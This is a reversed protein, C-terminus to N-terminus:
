KFPHFNKYTLELGNKELLAKVIATKWDNPIYAHCTPLKVKQAISPALIDLCSKVLWKPILVLSCSANYSTSNINSVDEVSLPSFSDLLLTLVLLILKSIISPTRSLNLKKLLSNGLNIQLQFQIMTLCYIVTALIRVFSHLWNLYSGPTM